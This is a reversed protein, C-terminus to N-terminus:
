HSCGFLTIVRQSLDESPRWLLLGGHGVGSAAVAACDGEGDRGVRGGFGHGAVAGM